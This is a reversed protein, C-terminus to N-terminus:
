KRLDAYRHQPNVQQVVSKRWEFPAAKPNHAAIFADIAERVQAPSTFSAGRLAARSLISFWIEVQNRWSAHTPTFHFHVNPHRALWRDHKPKHTSLNDLVVHIQQDPPYSGVVENMFDLFELRRRRAYHGAQVQGTAVNLAAFLTTTGHRVYEHAFGTLARGNPLRLYGQARELAQIHPKEDVCLVLANEPPDLYLAVIDAAKAAFEPDTSVCWSRRRQLQIGQQRLVRWVQHPSVDGLAEALLPGNWTAYGAPPQEDLQALIRAETDADYHRPRGARRADTLGALRDQAFRLRWKSVTAPRLRERAGIATTGEGAAAAMTKIRQLVRAENRPAKTPQAMVVDGFLTREAVITDDARAALPGGGPRAFADELRRVPQDLLDTSQPPRAM